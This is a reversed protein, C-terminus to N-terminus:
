GDTVEARRLILVVMRLFPQPNHVLSTRTAPHTEPHAFTALLDSAAIYVDKHRSSWEPYLEDLSQFFWEGWTCEAEAVHGLRALFAQDLSHM